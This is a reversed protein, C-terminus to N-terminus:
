AAGPGDEEEMARSRYANGGEDVPDGKDGSDQSGWSDYWEGAADVGRSIWDPGGSPAKDSEMHQVGEYAFQVTWSIPQATSYDLNDHQISTITPNFLIIPSKIPDERGGSMRTIVIKSFFYKEYNIAPDDAPKGPPAGPEPGTAGGSEGYPVERDFKKKTARSDATFPPQFGFKDIAPNMDVVDPVFGGSGFKTSEERGDKYYWKFYEKMVKQFKNDRTDWFRITIPNWEVRTQIVRKRNYQNLTQTQFAFSPLDCSQVIETLGKLMDRWPKNGTNRTTYFEVVFAHKARPIEGLQRGYETVTGFSHDAYNRLIRGFYAM